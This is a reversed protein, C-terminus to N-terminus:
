RYLIFIIYNISRKVYILVFWPRGTSIIFSVIILDGNNNPFLIITFWFFHNVMYTLLIVHPMFIESQNMIISIYIWWGYNMIGIIFIYFVINHLRAQQHKAICFILYEFICINNKIYMNWYTEWCDLQFVM